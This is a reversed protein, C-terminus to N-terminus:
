PHPPALRVIEDLAPQLEARMTEDREKDKLREDRDYAFELLKLFGENVAIQLDGSAEFMLNEVENCTTEGGGIVRMMVGIVEKIDREVPRRGGAKYSPYLAAFGMM